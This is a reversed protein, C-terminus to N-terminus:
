KIEGYASNIAAIGKENNLFKILELSYFDGIPKMIKFTSPISFYVDMRNSNSNCTFKFLKVSQLKISNYNFIATCQQISPVKYYQRLQFIFSELSTPLEEETIDEWDVLKFGLNIDDNCIYEDVGDLKFWNKKSILDQVQQLKM